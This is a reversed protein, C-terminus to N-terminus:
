VLSICVQAHLLDHSWSRHKGVRAPVAAPAPTHHVSGAKDKRAAGAAESRSSASLFHHWSSATVEPPQM